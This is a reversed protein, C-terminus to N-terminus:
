STRRPGGLRCARGPHVTCGCCWSPCPGTAEARQRLCFWRRATGCNRTNSHPETIPLPMIGVPRESGVNPSVSCEMAAKRRHLAREGRSMMAGGFKWSPEEVHHHYSPDPLWCRDNNTWRDGFRSPSVEAALPAVPKGCGSLCKKPLVLRLLTRPSFSSRRPKRYGSHGSLSSAQWFCHEPSVPLWSDDRLGSSPQEYVVPRYHIQGKRFIGERDKGDIGGSFRETAVPLCNGSM